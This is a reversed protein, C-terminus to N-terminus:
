PSHRACARGDRDAIHRMRVPRRSLRSSAGGGASMAPNPTPSRRCTLTMGAVCSPSSRHKGPMAAAALTSLHIGQEPPAREAYDLGHARATPPENTVDFRTPCSPRAAPLSPSPLSRSGGGVGSLKGSNEDLSAPRGDAKRFDFLPIGLTRAKDALNDSIGSGPFVMAGVPLAALLLDDRKFPAANRSRTADLRSASQPVTRADAWCAAIREVGKPSGGHLPVMGPHKSGTSHRGSRTITTASM